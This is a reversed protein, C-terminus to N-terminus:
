HPDSGYPQISPHLPPRVQLKCRREQSPMTQDILLHNAEAKMLAEIGRRPADYNACYLLCTWADTAEDGATPSGNNSSKQQKGRQARSVWDLTEYLKHSALGRGNAGWLDLPATAFAWSRILVQSRRTQTPQLQQLRRTLSCLHYTGGRCELWDLGIRDWGIGQM